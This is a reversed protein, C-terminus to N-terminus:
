GEGLYEGIMAKSLGDTTLLFVAIDVPQRSRIFGNELLFQIGKKPKYNFRKLGEQLIMKRQKASEFRSPDDETAIDPTPTRSADNGNASASPASLTDLSVDSASVMGETNSGRTSSTTVSTEPPADGIANTTDPKGSGSATGWSVLSRLVAVMSELGQRKLQQESLGLNQNDANGPVALASTSLAPPINLSQNRTPKVAPSATENGKPTPASTHSSSLKSLTNMLSALDDIKIEDCCVVYRVYQEYINDVAQRDCDYNLYIEVLAQPEQCLRQLMGLVVSKQKLTSTKM